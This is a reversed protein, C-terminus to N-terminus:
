IGCEGFGRQLGARIIEIDSVFPVTKMIQCFQEEALQIYQNEVFNHKM